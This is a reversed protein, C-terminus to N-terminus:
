ILEKVEEVRFEYLLDPDHELEVCVLGDEEVKTVKGKGLQTDVPKNLLWEGFIPVSVFQSFPMRWSYTLYPNIESLYKVNGGCQQIVLSGEGRTKDEILIEYENDCCGIVKYTNGKILKYDPYSKGTYKVKRGKHIEYFEKANM